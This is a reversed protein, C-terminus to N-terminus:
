NVTSYKAGYYFSSRNVYFYSDLTDIDVCFLSVPEEVWLAIVSAGALSPLERQEDNSDVVSSSSYFRFNRSM